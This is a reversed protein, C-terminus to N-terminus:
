AADDRSSAESPATGSSAAEKAETVPTTGTIATPVPSIVGPFQTYFDTMAEWRIDRGNETKEAEHKVETFETFVTNDGADAGEEIQLLMLHKGETLYKSDFFVTNNEKSYIMVPSMAYRSKFFNAETARKHDEPWLTPLIDSPYSPLAAKQEQMGFGRIKIRIAVILLEKFFIDKLTAAETIPQSFIAKFRNPDEAAIQALAEKPKLQASKKEEINRDKGKIIAARIADQLQSARKVDDRNLISAMFITAGTPNNKLGELNLKNAEREIELLKTKYALGARSIAAQDQDAKKVNLLDGRTKLLNAANVSATQLSRLTSKVQALHEAAPTPEGKISFVAETLKEDNVFTAVITPREKLVYRLITNFDEPNSTLALTILREYNDRNNLVISVMSERINPMIAATNLIVKLRDPALLSSQILFDYFNAPSTYAAEILSRAPDSSKELESLKALIAERNTVDPKVSDKIEGLNNFVEMFYSFWFFMGIDSTTFASAIIFGKDSVLDKFTDILSGTDCSELIISKFKIAQTVLPKVIDKGIKRKNYSHHYLIGLGGHGQAAILLDKESSGALKTDWEFDMPISTFQASAADLEAGASSTEISPVGLHIFDDKIRVTPAPTIPTPKSVSASATRTSERAAGVMSSSSVIFLLLLQSIVKTLM